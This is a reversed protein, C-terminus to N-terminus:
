YSHDLQLDLTIIVEVFQYGFLMVPQDLDNRTHAAASLRIQQKGQKLLVQAGTANGCIMNNLNGKIGKLAFFEPVRFYQVGM